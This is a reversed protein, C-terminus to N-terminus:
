TKTNHLPPLHSTMFREGSFIFLQTLCIEQLILSRQATAMAVTKGSLNIEILVSM